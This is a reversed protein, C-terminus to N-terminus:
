GLNLIYDSLIVQCIM